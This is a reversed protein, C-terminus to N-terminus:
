SFNFGRLFESFSLKKRGEQQLELVNLAYQGCGIILEEKSSFIEGPKLVKEKNASANYIKIIKDKFYFHAGPYPSLGRILNNIDNAPKHWVILGNEKNIKPAPSALTDDQDQLTFNGSNILDITEIVTEAGIISLKDHVAGFNDKDLIEIKKQIFINGTDVKDELAFTTVGTERDGNIISWQIPAAGRYKPLLSAHLNFSGYKPISFVERPLIRFAVVVFLDPALKKLSKVFGDDKLREPQLLPLNNKLAFEKIPTFSVKRGRGREKDPATVVALLKHKSNFIKELSPVAFDPTGMFIINM